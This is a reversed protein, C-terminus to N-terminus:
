HQDFGEPSNTERSRFPCLILYLRDPEPQQFDGALHANGRALDPDAVRLSVRPLVDEDRGPRGQAASFFALVFEQRASGHATSAQRFFTELLFRLSRYGM